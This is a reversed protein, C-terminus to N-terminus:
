IKHPHVYPGAIIGDKVGQDIMETVVEAHILTSPHNYFAYDKPPQASSPICIGTNLDYSLQAKDVPPYGELWQLIM